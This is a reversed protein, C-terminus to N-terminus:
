ESQQRIAQALIGAAVSANLSEAQGWAPITVLHTCLGQLHLSLGRSENGILLLGGQAPFKIQGLGLGGALVTGVISVHTNNQKLTNEAEFDEMISWEMRTIRSLADPSLESYYVPMRFASGMSAQLVKPNYCNVTDTSCILGKFGYWDATRIINGLNGPDQIQELVMWWPPLTRESSGAQPMQRRVPWDPPVRVVGVVPPPSALRSIRAMQVATAFVAPVGAQVWEQIENWPAESWKDAIGDELVLFEPMWGSLYAEQLLKRGEVLVKDGSKGPREQSLLM